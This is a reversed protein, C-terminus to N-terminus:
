TFAAGGSSANHSSATHHLERRKRGLFDPGTRKNQLDSLFDIFFFKNEIDNSRKGIFETRLRKKETTRILEDKIENEFNNTRKGLIESGMKKDLIKAGSLGSSAKSVSRKGLFESGIEFDRFVPKRKIDTFPLTYFLTLVGIKYGPHLQRLIRHFPQLTYLNLYHDSSPDLPVGHDHNVCHTIVLGGTVLFLFPVMSAFKSIM